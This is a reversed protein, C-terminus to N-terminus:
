RALRFGINKDRQSIGACGRAASRAWKAEDEYGGGRLVRKGGKLPGSPDRVAGDPYGAYWDQCWEWVNGHMDHIGWANPKKLGVPHTENGSNEAYWAYDELRVDLDGYCYATRSGARCAYEWEAETPLRAGGEGSLNLKGLFDQADKWSVREVPRGAEKFKAPNDAMVALWQAQTVPYRSIWFGLAIQVTHQPEDKKRAKEAKPSGMEFVGPPCWVFEIDDFTRVEGPKPEGNRAGQPPSEPQAPPSAPPTPVPAPPTPAPAAVPPTAPTESPQPQAAPTAAALTTPQGGPPASAAPAPTSERAPVLKVRAITWSYKDIDVKTALREYGEADVTLVYEGTPLDYYQFPRDVGATGKVEGNLSVIAKPVNVKVQLNGISENQEAYRNPQPLSAIAETPPGPRFPEWPVAEAHTRALIIEGSVKDARWPKQKLGQRSAWRRTTDWTYRSLETATIYGDKNKDGNGRLGELLFYTFAGHGTNPMEYSVENEGCSSLIVKGESARDLEEMAATDMKDSGRGTGSHCADLILIKKKARSRDLLREVDAFAVGTTAVNILAAESPLLYLAGDETTGHGAFYVLVTDDPGALELRSTLFRLINARTPRSLTGESDVLILVNEVPFGDKLGSLMKKVAWADNVANPLDGIGPDEYHGVGIIVAWRQPSYADLGETLGLGRPEDAGTLALLVVFPLTLVSTGM